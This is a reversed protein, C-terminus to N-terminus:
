IDKNFIAKASGGGCLYISKRIQFVKLCISTGYDENAWDVLFHRLKKILWMKYIGKLHM